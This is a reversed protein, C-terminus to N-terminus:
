KYAGGLVLALAKNKLYLELIYHLSRLILPRWNIGVYFYYNKNTVVICDFNWFINPEKPWKKLFLYIM